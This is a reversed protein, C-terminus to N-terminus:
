SSWVAKRAIDNAIRKVISDNKIAVYRTKGSTPTYVEVVGKKMDIIVRKIWTTNCADVLIYTTYSPEDGDFGLLVHLIGAILQKRRGRTYAYTNIAFKIHISRSPQPTNTINQNVAGDMSVDFLCKGM